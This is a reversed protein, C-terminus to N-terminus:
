PYIIIPCNKPAANYIEKMEFNTVAVCGNTWNYLRHLKGIVGLGNRIGHIMILGGPSKNQAKAYAKDRENPYSIHLSLYAISNKNKWDLIYEGEPTKEDGEFQKHGKPNAGMSIKYTKVISDERLLHLENQAKYVEIRDIEKVKLPHFNINSIILTATLLLISPFLIKKL